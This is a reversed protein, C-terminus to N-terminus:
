GRNVILYGNDAEYIIKGDDWADEISEYDYEDMFEKKTMCSTDNIIFNDVISAISEKITLGDFWGAGENLYFEEYADAEEYGIQSGWHGVREALMEVFDYIDLELTVM